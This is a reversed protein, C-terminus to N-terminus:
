TLSRQLTLTLDTKDTIRRMRLTMSQLREVTDQVLQGKSLSHKSTKSTWDGQLNSKHSSAITERPQLRNSNAKSPMRLQEMRTRLPAKCASSVM